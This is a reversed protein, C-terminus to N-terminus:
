ASGWRRAVRARSATRPVNEGARDQRGATTARKARVNPTVCLGDKRAATSTSVSVSHGDGVIGRLPCPCKGFSLEVELIRLEYKFRRVELGLVRALVISFLSDHAKPHEPITHNDDAVGRTARIAVHEAHPFGIVALLREDGREKPDLRSLTAACTMWGSSYSSSGSSVSSMIALPFTLLPPRGRESFGLLSIEM